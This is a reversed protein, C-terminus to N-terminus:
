DAVPAQNSIGARDLAARRRYWLRLDVFGDTFQVEAGDVGAGAPALWQPVLRLVAALAIVAVIALLLM